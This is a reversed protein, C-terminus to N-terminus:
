FPSVAGESVKEFKIGMDQLRDVYKSKGFLSGSTHVGGAGLTREEELVTLAAASAFIPTAVYGIEPGSVRAVVQFDPQANESVTNADKYGKAVFTMSFSAESMMAETPGEHSFLGNSFTKPYKLLLGRTWSNWGALWQFLGGFFAFLFVSWRSSVTFMANYHVAREGVSALFAQTRKVISADAGPFPLAWAKMYKSFTAATIRPPKPGPIKPPPLAKGESKAKSRLARLEQVASVGLVASQWTPYHGVYGSPGANVTLFSAVSSAVSPSQFQHVTFITGMDAPVSDFGVASAVFVGARQALDHYKYEMKEIFEPEGSVDLYHAGGEVCAKVVAEGWFRYPGVCNILVRTSRAMELLSEPQDVDAVTVESIAENCEQVLASLKARDRGAVAIRISPPAVETLKKVVRKGTFGTAGFVTVDM